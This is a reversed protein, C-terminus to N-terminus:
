KLKELFLDITENTQKIHNILTDIQFCIHKNIKEADKTFKSQLRNMAGEIFDGETKFIFEKESIFSKHLKERLMARDELIIRLNFDSMLKINSILDHLYHIDIKKRKCIEFLHENSFLDLLEVNLSPISKIEYKFNIPNSDLEIKVKDCYLLMNKLFPKHKKQLLNLLSYQTLNISKKQNLNTLYVTAAAALCGAILAGLVGIIAAQITPESFDINIYNICM